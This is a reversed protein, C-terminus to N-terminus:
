PESGPYNGYQLLNIIEQQPVAGLPPDIHPDLISSRTLISYRQIISLFPSYSRNQIDEVLIDLQVQRLKGLHM